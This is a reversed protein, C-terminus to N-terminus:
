YTECKNNLYIVTYSTPISLLLHHIYHRVEIDILLNHRYKQALKLQLHDQKPYHDLYM